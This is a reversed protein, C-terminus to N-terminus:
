PELESTEGRDIKDIAAAILAGAKILDRRVGSITLDGPKFYRLDWPWFRRCGTAYAASGWILNEILENKDHNEDYHEEEIQRKRENYIADCGSSSFEKM